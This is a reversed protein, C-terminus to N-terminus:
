LTVSKILDTVGGQIGIFFGMGISNLIGYEERL